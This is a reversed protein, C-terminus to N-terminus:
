DSVLNNSQREFEDIRAYRAEEAALMAAALSQTEAMGVPREELRIVPRTIHGGIDNVFFFGVVESGRDTLEVIRDAEVSLAESSCHEGLNPFINDLQSALVEVSDGLFEDPPFSIYEVYNDLSLRLLRRGGDDFLSNEGDGCVDVKSAVADLTTHLRTDDVKLRLYVVEYLHRGLFDMLNSNDQSFSHLSIYASYVPISPLGLGSCDITVDRAVLIIPSCAGTTQASNSSQGVCQSTSIMTLFFAFLGVRM